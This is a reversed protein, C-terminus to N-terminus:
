YLYWVSLRDNSYIKYRDKNMSTFFNKDEDEQNLLSGKNEIIYKINYENIVNKSFEDDYRHRKINHGMWELSSESAEIKYYSESWFYPSLPTAREIKLEEISVYDDMLQEPKNGPFQKLYMVGAIRNLPEVDNSFIVDDDDVTYKLWLGTDYTEEEMHRENYIEEAESGPHRLQFFASAGLSILLITIIITFAARKNIKDSILNYIFYIGFGALLYVFIAIFATMYTVILIFPLLTLTFFLLIVENLSKHLKHVLFIFGPIAFLGMIGLQRSYTRAMIIFWNIKPQSLVEHRIGAEFFSAFIDFIIFIPVMIFFIISFGIIIRKINKQHILRKFPYIYIIMFYAIVPFLFFTYLHHISVLYVFIVIILFIYIFNKELRTKRLLLFLFIPIFTIFLGRTSITWTTLDLFVEGTSFGFVVLFIYLDNNFIEKAVMYSVFIGLIGCLIGFLLISNEISLGSAQSVGSLLFPVASAYSFPTLGFTSFPHIWWTPSGQHNLANILKHIFFSDAGIEHPTFPYRLSIAIFILSGFLMYKTRKSLKM